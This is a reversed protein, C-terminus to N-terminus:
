RSLILLPVCSTLLFNYVVTREMVFGDSVQMVAHKGTGLDVTPYFPTYGIPFRGVVHGNSVKGAPVFMSGAMDVMGEAAPPAVIDTVEIAAAAPISRTPARPATEALALSAIAAATPQHRVTSSRARRHASSRRPLLSTPLPALDSPADATARVPASSAISHVPSDALVAAAVQRARAARGGASPTQRIRKAAHARLTAPDAVAAARKPAARRTAKTTAHTSLLVEQVTHVRASAQHGPETDSSSRRGNFVGDCDGDSSSTSDLGDSSTSSLTKVRVSALVPGVLTSVAHRHEPAADHNVPLNCEAPQSHLHGLRTNALRSDTADALPGHVLPAHYILVLCSMSGCYPYVTHHM